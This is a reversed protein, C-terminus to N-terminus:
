VRETLTNEVTNQPTNEVTNETQHSERFYVGFYLRFTSSLLHIKPSKEVTNELTNESGSQYILQGGAQLNSFSTQEFIFLQRLTSASCCILEMRCYRYAGICPLELEGFFLAVSCLVVCDLGIWDVM